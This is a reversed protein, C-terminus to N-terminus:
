LCKFHVLLASFIKGYVSQHVSLCSRKDILSAMISYLDTAQASALLVLENVFWDLSVMLQTEPM